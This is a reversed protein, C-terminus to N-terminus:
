KLIGKQLWESDVYDANATHSVKKRAKTRTKLNITALEGTNCAWGSSGLRAAVRAAVETCLKTNSNAWAIEKNQNGGSNYITRCAKNNADLYEIYIHKQGGSKHVCAIDQTGAIASESLGTLLSIFTIIGFFPQNRIRNLYRNIM